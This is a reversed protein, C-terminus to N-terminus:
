RMQQLLSKVDQSGRNESRRFWDDAELTQRLGDVNLNNLIDLGYLASLEDVGSAVGRRSADRFWLHSRIRDLIMGRDINSIDQAGACPVNVTVQVITMATWLIISLATKKCLAEM